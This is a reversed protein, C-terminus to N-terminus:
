RGIHGGNLEIVRKMRANMGDFLAHLQKMPISKRISELRQKLEDVSKCSDQKHLQTDMWGWLNEIPSLDPSNAPWALFHGAPISSAILDMNQATKHPPANDQQLQWNGSWKPSQQFLRDGEPKFHQSVVDKYEQSCVGSFLRKTKPSIYKSPQKHTGTVFILQTTGWYTIGMYVHVGICHKVRAVSARTGATCWRGAPRGKAQLLFYKSDTVMVRRWSVSERRLAAKAFKVRNLKQKATLFPIVKPHKHTFGNRRLISRVTSDSLQKGLNQQTKVAISAATRCEPLQAAKLVHQQTAEDATPPRGSRPQDDVSNDLEFRKVWRSVFAHSCGIRKGIAKYSMNPHDRKLWAARLRLERAATNAKAKTM